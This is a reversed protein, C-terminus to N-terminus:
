PDSLPTPRDAIKTAEIEDAETSHGVYRDTMKLSSHSMWAQVARANVGAAVALTAFTARMAHCEHGHYEVGAAAIARLLHSSFARRTMAKGPSQGPFILDTPKTDVTEAHRRALVDHAAPFLPVAYEKRNKSLEKRCVLQGFKRRPSTWRVDRWQLHLLANVRFGSNVGVVFADRAWGKLQGTIAVVESETWSPTAVSDDEGPVKTGAWPNSAVRDVELARAWVAGLMGKEARVTNFKAGAVRRAELYARCDARTVAEVNVLKRTECFKLFHDISRRLVVFSRPRRTAQYSTRYSNLFDMVPTARPIRIEQGMRAQTDLDQFPRALLIVESPPRPRKGEPPWNSGKKWRPDRLLTKKARTGKGTRFRISWWGTSRDFEPEAM